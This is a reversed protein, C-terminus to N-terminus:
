KNENDNRLFGLIKDCILSAGEATFNSDKSSSFLEFDTLLIDELSAKIEENGLSSLLGLYNANTKKEFCLSSHVHADIISGFVIPIGAAIAEYRSTGSGTILLNSKEFLGLLNKPSYALSINEIDEVINEIRRVSETNFEPGIVVTIYTGLIKIESLVSVITETYCQPDASGFSLLVSKNSPFESDKNQQLQYYERGVLAYQGGRIALTTNPLPLNEAGYYPQILVDIFKSSQATFSDDGFGDFAVTIYGSKKAVEVYDELEGFNTTLRESSFIDLILVSNNPYVELEEQVSGIDIEIMEKKSLGSNILRKVLMPPAAFRVSLNRDKLERYLVLSRSVHGFGSNSTFEARVIIM